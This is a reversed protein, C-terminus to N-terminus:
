MAPIEPRLPALVCMTGTPLLIIQRNFDCLRAIIASKELLDKSVLIIDGPHCKEYISSLKQELEMPRTILSLFAVGAPRCYAGSGTRDAPSSSQGNASQALLVFAFVVLFFKM